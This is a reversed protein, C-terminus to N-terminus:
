IPGLTLTAPLAVSARAADPRSQAPGPFSRDFSAPRNAEPTPSAVRGSRRDTATTHWAACPTRAGSLPAGSRLRTAISTRNQRIESRALSTYCSLSEDVAVLFGKRYTRAVM